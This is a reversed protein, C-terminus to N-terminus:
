IGMTPTFLVEFEVPAAAPVSVISAKEIKMVIGKEM